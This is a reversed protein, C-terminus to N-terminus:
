LEQIQKKLTKFFTLVVLHNKEIGPKLFTKM